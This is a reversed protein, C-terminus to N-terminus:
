SNLKDLEEKLLNFSFGATFPLGHNEEEDSISEAHDEDFLLDFVDDEEDFGGVTFDAVNFRGAAVNLLEEEGDGLTLDVVSSSESAQRSTSPRDRTTALGFSSSSLRSASSSVSDNSCGSDRRRRRCSGSRLCEASFWQEYDM